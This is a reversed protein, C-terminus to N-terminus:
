WIIFIFASQCLLLSQWDVENNYKSLDGGIGHQWNIVQVVRCTPRRRASERSGVDAIPLGAIWLLLGADRIIFTPKFLCIVLVAPHKDAKKSIM